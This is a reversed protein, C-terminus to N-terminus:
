EVTLFAAVSRLVWHDPAQRPTPLFFSLVYNQLDLAGTGRKQTRYVPCEYTEKMNYIDNNQTPVLHMIPLFNSLEKVGCEVLYQKAIDWKAGELPLGFVYVGELPGEKINDLDENMSVPTTKWRLTDYSVNHKRSFMQLIGSLFEDPHFFSGLDFVIPKQATRVWKSIFSIRKKFDKMFSHLSLVSPYCIQLWEDPIRDGKIKKMFNELSSDIIILGKLGKQMKELSNKMVIILSNYSVIEHFLITNMTDTTDFRKKFEILNFPTPLQKLLNEVVNLAFDEESVNESMSMALTPQVDILNAMIKLVENRSSITTANESLGVDTGLTQIPWDVIIKQIQDITSQFNPTPFRNNKKEIKNEDITFFKKLLSILTRRDWSDTVRGGYDLEGIVYSLADMPIESNTSESLFLKLHKRAISFDSPNFEYPINWGLSGFQLRELIVGHLFALQYTLQREPSYPEIHSYEEPDIQGYIRMVNERIGKPIEYILKTSQYLIGIPFEPSSMTVLCLRFRKHTTQPSLNTVIQELKPMWSLSLHCNQLLVWFGKDAADQILQEAGAGQGRGLSYSRLYRDFGMTTAIQIIEDQPDIGPMIIFVLPSLCDSDKFVKQLNLTPPKIFDDGLNEEIFQILGEKIRQIHFIRMVLLRQFNTLDGQYPFLAEEPKDADIYRQWQAKNLQMHHVMEKFYPNISPLVGVFKWYEDSLWSIESKESTSTPSLFFSLESHSIKKEFMLIRFTMLTSFLLKHRSFLSYSVSTYFEKAISKHLTPILQAQDQSHDIESIASRFLPVFWKLSFQYMPDIVGFDAACFYLLSAREAVTQFRAKFQQIQQETKESLAMQKEISASTSQATQLTQIANDDDLIDDGANSVIKLIDVEIEKLKKFSEANSEMISIRKKDLDEREVELLNNLLLDTLGESTTTFNILSLQSCIEPTYHPNPYKTALYLRFKDNYSVIEGGLSIQLKGDIKSIEHSLIPEISPDLKLGVDEILVPFGTSICTRLRPMFDNQDFHLVVLNEGLISRLWRTGSLQPDILLPISNENQTIILANEISHQDNPLGKIIWDRTQVDNGLSSEITFNDSFKIEQTELFNKWNAIIDGRFKPSFPGLYTLVGTILLTDGLIYISSEKLNEACENWRTSEGSLGTIITQARDLRLQTKEVSETLEKEKNQMKEVNDVLVKLKEEIQALQSKAEELMKESNELRKKAEEAAAKKPLIDQYVFWYDFSACVWDYLAGVALFSALAAKKKEQRLQKNMPVYRKLKNIAEKPISEIKFNTVNKIFQVDNLLSIAEPWYDDEKVGPSVEVKRPQRGFMISIADFTDKMGPTPSHLKKINTLSDKDLKQVAEQAEQLLPQALEFQEQAVKNAETALAAEKEAEKSQEEVKKKMEEVEERKVKLEELMTAVEKKTKELLPIEHDLKVSMEEIQSRTVKIKSYGNQYDRIQQATELQKKSLKKLFTQLFEFYRSPTVATYRKTEKLFTKSWDEVSKHIKVCVTIISTVLEASGISGATLSAKAISELANQSLPLYFDIVSESRILGYHLMIDKFVSGYPSIVFIIHLNKLIRENFLQLADIDTSIESSLIDSKITELEDKEFLQPISGCSMLNSIDELQQEHIIQGDNIIFGTSMDQVGCQKLLRKLDEKWDAVSYGRKIVIEFPETSIIHLALRTFSKRGSSKVGLLIMHGKEMGIVRVLSSIHEVAEHFLTIKMEKSTDANYNDLTTICTQLVQDVTNTVLKYRQSGDIFQNFMLLKNTHINDWQVKFHKPFMEIMQNNFWARDETTTLKDQFERNMEHFWLQLFLNETTLYSSNTQLMGRVVRVLSRLGFIYHLKSPVPLLTNNIQDFIDITATSISRIMEKITQEYKTFHLMMLGNMIQQLVSSKYKPVHLIFYHRMLRDSINYFGGGPQRMLGCITTEVINLFEMTKTNYWGHYNNFQNLLELSPQAGYIEPKITNMNDFFYILKKNPLPGYKGSKKHMNSIMFQKIVDPTTCPSFQLYHCDYVSSNLVNNMLVTTTLTKLTEPGCIIFNKGYSLLLKSLFLTSASENTPVMQNYIPNDNTFNLNSVGDAWVAWSMRCLDPYYDFVTLRPPFACKSQNLEIQDKMFKDFINRFEDPLIGGFSWVLAFIFIREFVLNIQEDELVAISTSETGSFLSFYLNSDLKDAQKTENTGEVTEVEIKRTIPLYCDLLTLLNNVVFNSNTIIVPAADNTIFRIMSPVYNDMLERLKKSAIENIKTAREFWSDCLATWPLLSQDFYIMGCRSVTAPSAQSLDGVEFVMKVKPTIQIRENNPLCLVKNDDLLSNMSEIWTSDVPGDVIIWKLCDEESFSCERISSSLIGDSWESTAPNFSGYLEDSTISKPNLVRTFVKRKEEGSNLALEMSKWATSKMSMANGVLMIGHRMEQTEFFEMAKVITEQLPILQLDKSIVNKVKEIFGDDTPKNVSSDPFVDKLIGDFLPVDASVLRPRTCEYISNLLLVSEDLDNHVRKAIAARGLISKMARLGWDYHHQNSLQTQFLQFIAVLKVSLSSASEFGGSFLLIECIFGYDPIMMACPRFLAKLNDPLETRGAYGPNMTICIAANMNLKLTRHDMAFHDVHNALATQITRVQQAIVSLVEINIRNFEDFCSWSGATSLGAFFQSMQEPTVNESCNYVVCSRGLAKACDRVTETKGTGAPGSPAGSLNQKFASLLTQYCRDTLPTIVLRTSNGAYEYSYEYSNNISHVFVNDDEWYYRLQQQWKFDDVDIVNSNILFNIIDRNHVEAILLCSLVQRMLISTTNRVLTTLLNLQDVYKTILAKLGRIKTGKFTQVIQQTWMIQNAILVAQAPFDRIWVERKKTSYNFLADRISGKLTLKMEEEFALLWEEIEITNANVPQALTVCEGNVDNMATIEIDSSVTLTNVYEFLKPMSEQIKDFDKTHSLISILEENSLFFFRPFNLRKTELYENIGKTISELLKNCSKLQTNLTERHMVNLFDPHNHTLTMISGWLKNASLWDSAERHLKQQISTGSFIPQLYLFNRQCIMWEDLTDHSNKLFELRESARTKVPGIFPSTLLSQTLVIQDDLISLIEDVQQLIFHGSDKYQVTVFKITQLETDMQDISSEIAYEQAAVGAIESIKGFWRGLNFDLFEQLSLDASPKVTFGVVDSIKEWHQTKIGPHRLKILLPMHQSFTEVQSILPTIVKEIIVKQNSLEKKLKVLKKSSISVFQSMSDTKLQPFPTLMWQDYVTSWDKALNWLQHLPTFEEFLKTLIRSHNPEFEFLKEHSNYKEQEEKLEELKQAIENIQDSAELTLDLNNYKLVFANLTESTILTENELHRQNARLNRIMSIREQALVKDAEELLVSVKGPMKLTNYRFAFDENNLDFNYDELFQFRQNAIEIRKMRESEKEAVEEHYRKMEALDEPSQPVIKLKESIEEYEESLNKISAMMLNKMQILFRNILGRIQTIANDKFSKCSVRFLGISYFQKLDNRVKSLTSILDDLQKRYDDLNRDGNPDFDSVFDVPDYKLVREIYRNEDMFNDLSKFLEDIEKSFQEGGEKIANICDVFSVSSTDLKVKASNLVPLDAVSTELQQLLSLLQDKFTDTTPMFSLKSAEEHFYIEIFFQPDNEKNKDKYRTYLKGYEILTDEVIDLLVTHLMRATLIGMKQLMENLKNVINANTNLANAKPISKMTKTIVRDIVTQISSKFSKTTDNLHQYQRTVFDELTLVKNFSDNLFTINKSNQFIRWIKYIGEQIYRYGFLHNTSLRNLIAKFNYHPIFALGFDPILMKHDKKLLLFEERNPILPNHELEYLFEMKNSMMKYEAKIDGEMEKQIEAYKGTYKGTLEQIRRMSNDPIGPLNDTPMLSLRAELRVSAQYELRAKKAAEVRINFKDPDEKDFRINFRPVKKRKHNEDWEITYLRTTSNYGIVSCPEWTTEGNNTYKSVGHPEQLLEDNTYESLYIDDFYELPLFESEGLESDREPLPPLPKAPIRKKSRLITSLDTTATGEPFHLKPEHVQQSKLVRPLQVKIPANVAHKQAPSPPIEVIAEEQTELIRQIQNETLPISKPFPRISKMTTSARQENYESTSTDGVDWEGIIPIKITDEPSIRGIRKNIAKKDHIVQERQILRSKGRVFRAGTSM